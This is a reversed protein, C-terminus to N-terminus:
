HDKIDPTEHDLGSTVKERIEGKKNYAIAIDGATILMFPIGKLNKMVDAVAPPPKQEEIKAM